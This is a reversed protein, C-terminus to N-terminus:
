SSSNSEAAPPAAPAPLNVHSIPVLDLDEPLVPAPKLVPSLEPEDLAEEMKLPQARNFRPLPRGAAEPDPLPVPEDSSELLDDEVPSPSPNSKAPLSNGIPM